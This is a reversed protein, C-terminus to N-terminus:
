FIRRAVAGCQPCKPLDLVARMTEPNIEVQSTEGSFIGIGCDSTCQLGGFSGHIEVVQESRFGARQFQGDVNSTFVFGGRRMRGAWRRLIEFGAHPTTRRYLQMRHGYFGWALTPDDAFWRPNALSEFDLGLTKYPPYTRWFGEIGRFDPLGSDVGMGAGAGILLADATAIADAARDLSHDITM